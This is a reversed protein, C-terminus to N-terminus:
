QNAVLQQNTGASQVTYMRVVETENAAERRREGVEKAAESRSGGPKRGPSLTRIGGGLGGSSALEGADVDSKATSAGTLTKSGAKSVFVKSSGTDATGLARNSAGVLIKSDALATNRAAEAVAKSDTKNALTKSDPKAVLDESRALEAVTKSDPKRALEAVTKSDPKGTLTRIRVLHAVTESGPAAVPTKSGGGIKAKVRQTVNSSLRETATAALGDVHRRALECCVAALTHRRGDWYLTAHLAGDEAAAGQHSRMWAVAATVCRKGGLLSVCGHAQTMMVCGAFVRRVDDAADVAGGGSLPERHRHLSRRVDAYLRAVRSVCQATGGVVVAGDRRTFCARGVDSAIAQVAPAHFRRMYVVVDVDPLAAHHPSAVTADWVLVADAGGPVPGDDPPVAVADLRAAVSRLQALPASLCLRGSDDSDVAWAGMDCELSSM